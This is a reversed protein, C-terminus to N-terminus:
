ADRRFSIKETGQLIASSVIQNIGKQGDPENKSGVNYIVGVAVKPSAHKEM